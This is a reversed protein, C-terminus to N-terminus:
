DSYDATKGQLTQKTGLSNYDTLTRADTSTPVSQGRAKDLGLEAAKSGEAKEPTVYVGYWDGAMVAKFAQTSGGNGVLKIKKGAALPAAGEIAQSSGIVVNVDPHAQLVNQFAARGTDATYGGVVNAVVNAGGAKLTSVAANTRATDLPYNAFGQLYAVKCPTAGAEKCAGLGLTGLGQGNITPADVVSVTGPIQAETTDYRGGVPTYEIVVTIGAAVAQKVAPVIATGDNAQVIVINYRKSTVADQLQNVQTPSDFNPDLFAATANHGAAYEQIGAWTAQAFSNAKSFGFFGISLKKDAAASTNSSAASSSPKSCSTMTLALAALACTAGM